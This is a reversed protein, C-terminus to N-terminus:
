APRFARIPDPDSGPRAPVGGPTRMSRPVFDHSRATDEALVSGPDRGSVFVASGLVKAKYGAGVSAIRRLRALGSAAAILIIADAWLVM